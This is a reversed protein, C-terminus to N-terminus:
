ASLSDRGAPGAADGARRGTVDRAEEEAGDANRSRSVLAWAEEESEFLDTSRWRWRPMPGAASTKGLKSEPEWNLSDPM